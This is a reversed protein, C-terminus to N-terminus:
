KAHFVVVSGMKIGMSRAVEQDTSHGLKMFVRVENGAEIFADLKQPETLFAIAHTESESSLFDNVELESNLPISSPGAQRLMYRVIGTSTVICKIYTHIYTHYMCTHMHIHTNVMRKEPDQTTTNKVM